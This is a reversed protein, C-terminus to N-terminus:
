LPLTIKHPATVGKMSHQARTAPAACPRTEDSCCACAVALTAVSLPTSSFVLIAWSRFCTAPSLSRISVSTSSTRRAARRGAARAAARARACPARAATPWASSRSVRPPPQRTTDGLHQDVDGLVKHLVDRRKCAQEGLV